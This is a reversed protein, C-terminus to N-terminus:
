ARRGHARERELVRGAPGNDGSARTRLLQTVGAGTEHQADTGLGHRDAVGPYGSADFGEFIQTRVGQYLRCYAAFSQHLAYGSPYTGLKAAHQPNGPAGIINMEELALAPTPAVIERGGDQAGACRQTDGNSSWM